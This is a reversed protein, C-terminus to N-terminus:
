KKQEAIMLSMINKAIISLTFHNNATVILFRHLV